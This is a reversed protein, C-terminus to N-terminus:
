SPNGNELSETPNKTTQARKLADSTRVKLAGGSCQAAGDECISQLYYLDRLELGKLKAAVAGIPMKKYKIGDREANVHQWFYDLLYGRESAIQEVDTAVARSSKMSGAAAVPSRPRANPVSPVVRGPCRLSPCSWAWAAPSRRDGGQSSRSRSLRALDDHQGQPCQM